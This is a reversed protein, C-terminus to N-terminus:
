DANDIIICQKLNDTKILKTNVLPLKELALSCGTPLLIISELRTFYTSSKFSAIMLM